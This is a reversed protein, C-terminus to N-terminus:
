DVESRKTYSRYDEKELCELFPDHRFKARPYRNFQIYNVKEYLDLFDPYYAEYWFKYYTATTNYYPTTTTEEEYDYAAVKFNIKHSKNVIKKTIHSRLYRRLELSGKEMKYTAHLCTQIQTQDKRQCLELKMKDAGILPRKMKYKFLTARHNYLRYFIRQLENTLCKKAHSDYISRVDSLAEDFDEVIWKQAYSNHIPLCLFAALLLYVRTKKMRLRSRSWGSPNYRLANDLELQPGMKEYNPSILTM